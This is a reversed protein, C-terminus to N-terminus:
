QTRRWSRPTPTRHLMRDLHDARRRRGARSNAATTQDDHFRIMARDDLYHTDAVFTQPARSEVERIHFVRRGRAKGEYSGARAIRLAMEPAIREQQAGDRILKVFQTCLSLRIFLAEGTIFDFRNNPKSVLPPLKVTGTAISM